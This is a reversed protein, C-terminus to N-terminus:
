RKFNGKEDFADKFSFEKEEKEEKKTEFGVPISQLLKGNAEILREKEQKLKKIESDKNKNDKLVNNNKTILDAMDDSILAYNDNGLKEELSSTLSNIFDEQM